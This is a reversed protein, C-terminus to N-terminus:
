RGQKLFALVEDMDPPQPIDYQRTFVVKEEEDVIINARGSIGGDERFNDYLRSVEGHPWFDSLLRTKKIRLSDAWAKKTPVPDCSIGLPVTGLAALTDHNEELWLMQAQCVRTWALPHFSLLVRKGKFDVLSVNKGDQDKLTFPPAKDGISIM